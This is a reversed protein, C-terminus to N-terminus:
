KKPARRKGYGGGGPTEIIIRDGIEAVVSDMGKLQITKKRSILRQKGPKGAAGGILGYPKEVRHQSLINVEVKEKFSIERVVGNGGAM